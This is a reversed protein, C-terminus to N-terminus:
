NVPIFLIISLSNLFFSIAAISCSAPVELPPSFRVSETPLRTVKPMPAITPVPM